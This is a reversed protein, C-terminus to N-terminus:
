RRPRCDLAQSREIAKEDSECVLPEFGIFHGDVGVPFVRYEAMGDKKSRNRNWPPVCNSLWTRTGFPVWLFLALGLPTHEGAPGSRERQAM